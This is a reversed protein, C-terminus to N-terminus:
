STSQSNTQGNRETQFSAITCTEQKTGAYEFVFDPFSCYPLGSLVVEDSKLTFAYVKIKVWLDLGSMVYIPVGFNRDRCLLTIESGLGAKM